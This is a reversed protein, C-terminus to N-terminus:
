CYRTTTCPDSCIDTGTCKWSTSLHPTTATARAPEERLDLEDFHFDTPTMIYVRETLQRATAARRRPKAGKPREGAQFFRLM